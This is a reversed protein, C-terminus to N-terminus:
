LLFPKVKVEEDLKMIKKIRAIPFAHKYFCEADSPMKKVDELLEKFKNELM